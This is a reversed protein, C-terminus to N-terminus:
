SISQVAIGSEMGGATRALQVRGMRTRGKTGSVQRYRQHAPRPIASGHKGAPIGVSWISIMIATAVARVRPGRCCRIAFSRYRDGREACIRDAFSAVGCGVRWDVAVHLDCLQRPSLRRASRIPHTSAWGFRFEFSETFVVADLRASEDNRQGFRSWWVLARDNGSWSEPRTASFGGPDSLDAVRLDTVAGADLRCLSFGRQRCLEAGGADADGYRSDDDDRIDSRSQDHGTSARGRPETNSCALNIAM